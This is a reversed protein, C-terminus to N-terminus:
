IREGVAFAQFNPVYLGFEGDILEAKMDLRGLAEEARELVDRVGPREGQEFNLCARVLEKIGRGYWDVAPFLRSGEGLM